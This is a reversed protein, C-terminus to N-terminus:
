TANAYHNHSAKGAFYCLAGVGAMGGYLGYPGLAKTFLGTAAAAGAIGVVVPVPGVKKEGYKADAIGAVIAGAVAVGGAIANKEEIHKRINMNRVNALKRDAAELARTIANTAM